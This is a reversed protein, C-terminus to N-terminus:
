LVSLRPPDFFYDLVDDAAESPEDLPDSEAPEPEPALELPSLEEDAAEDDFASEPADFPSKPEFLSEPADFAGTAAGAAADLM